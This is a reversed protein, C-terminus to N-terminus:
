NKVFEQQTNGIQIIYTGVSLSKVDIENLGNVLSNSDVLQGKLNFIQYAKAESSNNLYLISTTPNPYVIIENKEVEDIGVISTNEVINGTGNIIWNNPDFEISQVNAPFQMAVIQNNSNISFRQTVSSGDTGNVKIEIDNTFFLVSSPLSTLQGIEIYLIDNVKNWQATYNPFGEGYYWEDFFATFDMGTVSELVAKFDSAHATSDAFITQFQKLVNFFVADNNIMFRMTHIIGAGKDYSLRGSFIRNTNLSDECWVSGNSVSMVNDHIDAMQSVSDVPHFQTTMLYDSYTAFGENLWIDSWSACTVNDGWWQHGLEHATLGDEFWGQFTMTQHEMGGGFPAMCHGYKENEFPYMGYIESFYEIFDATNDIETQFYPLTNPNNYIFNQILIPNVAGTPNAYVNYEVYEAVSVAILYYDIAYNSEWEFRKTGNGLDVINKLVGNSGAMNTGNTTVYVYSSDAKDTLSQKCPWWEFASFPESLSWTVQNGWSNSTGNSMGGGGLPNSAATPPTGNYDVTIIFADGTTFNTPVIVASGVRTFNTSPTGNVLISNITLDGHLEFLVTDLVAVKSTAHIDVVGSIYTSTRELAIDLKYFHVDYEETLAIHELPLTNSRSQNFNIQSKLKSCNHAGNSTQAILSTAFFILNFSFILKKM